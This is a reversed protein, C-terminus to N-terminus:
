KLKIILQPQRSTGNSEITFKRGAIKLEEIIEKAAKYEGVWPGQDLGEDFAVISPSAMNCKIANWAAITPEYLDFDFYALSILLYNNEQFYNKITLNADGKILQIRHSLDFSQIIFELQELDGHYNGIQDLAKLSDKNSPSPLGSFNDFVIVKRNSQPEYEDLMKAIYVATAGKWTGFECIDGPAALAQELLSQIYQYRLMTQPCAFLPYQDIFDYLGAGFREKIADRAKFIASDSFQKYNTM